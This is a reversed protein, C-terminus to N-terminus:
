LIGRTNETFIDVIHQLQSEMSLYHNYDRVGNMVDRIDAAALGQRVLIDEFRELLWEPIQVSEAPRLRLRNKFDVTIVDGM